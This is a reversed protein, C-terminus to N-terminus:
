IPYDPPPGAVDDAPMAHLGGSQLLAALTDSPANRDELQELRLWIRNKGFWRPPLKM